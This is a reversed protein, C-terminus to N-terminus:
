TYPVNKVGGLSTSVSTWEIQGGLPERHSAPALGSALHGPDM